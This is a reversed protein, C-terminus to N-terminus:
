SHNSGKQELDIATILQWLDILSYWKEWHHPFKIHMHSSFLRHESLLPISGESFEPFYRSQSVANESCTFKKMTFTIRPIIRVCFKPKSLSGSDHNLLFLISVLSSFARIHLM